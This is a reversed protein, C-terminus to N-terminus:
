IGALLDIISDNTQFHWAQLGISRAGEVHQISDDIFLTKEPVLKNQRCIYDFTDAFPKRKGIENSFFVQEFFPHLSEEGIQSRLKRHFAQVHIENTNSLLFTRKKSRLERLFHMTEPPFNLLMSNWAAVVQNASIGAPLFTLINNIFHQSSIKGTEFLDFLDSQQAKSYIKDFSKLGLKQFADTTKQYDINLIVGGLDFIIADFEQHIMPYFYPINKM